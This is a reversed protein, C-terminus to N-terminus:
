TPLGFRRRVQEGALSAALVLGVLLVGPCLVPWAQGSLLDVQGLRIQTGLSPTTEPLGIGLFSLTAEDTVALGIELTALVGIPGLVNPLVHSAATRWAARGSTHAALRAAATFDRSQVARTATRVLRALPPLRAAGIAVAVLVGAPLGADFAGTLRMVADLLLALLLAPFASLVDMGRMLVADLMGGALAAALGAALGGALALGIASAAVLLSVQLGGVTSALVDHGQADTGLLHGPSWPPALSTALDVEAASRGTVRAILWPGTAALLMLLLLAAPAPRIM